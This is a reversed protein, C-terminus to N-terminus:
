TSTLIMDEGGSCCRRRSFNDKDQLSMAVASMRDFLWIKYAATTLGLTPLDQQLIATGHNIQSSITAPLHMSVRRTGIGSSPCSTSAVGVTASGGVPETCLVELRKLYLAGDMGISLEM